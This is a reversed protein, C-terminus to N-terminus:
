KALLIFHQNPYGCEEILEGEIFGFSKYPVGKQCLVFRPIKMSKSNKRLKLVPSIGVLQNVLKMWSSIDEKTGYELKM